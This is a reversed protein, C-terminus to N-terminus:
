AKPLGTATQNAGTQANIADAVAAFTGSNSAHDLVPQAAGAKVVGAAMTSIVANKNKAAAIAGAILGALTFGGNIAWNTLGAYPNAPALGGAIQTVTNSLSSIRPDPIYQPVSSTQGPPPPTYAPNPATCGALLLLGIIPVLLTKM